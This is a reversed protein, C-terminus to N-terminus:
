SAPTPLGARRRWTATWRHAPALDSKEFRGAVDHLMAGGAWAYFPELDQGFAGYGARWALEFILAIGLAARPQRLVRPMLRLITLTRAIDARPDGAHANTWDLVATLQVGHALVNLPHYDLHLLRDNQTAVARLRAALAADAPAPWNIWGARLGPPAAVLHLARQLRGFAIGLVVAATPRRELESLLPTGRSWAQLMAPRDEYTGVAFLEPVPVAGASAARMSILERELVHREHAQFVRLAYRGGGTAEIRWVSTAAGGTAREMDCTVAPRLM